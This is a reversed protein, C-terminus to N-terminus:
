IAPLRDLRVSVKQIADVVQVSTVTYWDGNDERFLPDGARFLLKYQMPEEWLVVGADDMYEIKSVDMM